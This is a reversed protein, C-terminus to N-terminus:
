VDHVRHAVHQVAFFRDVHAVHGSCCEFALAVAQGGRVGCEQFDGFAAGVPAAVADLHTYSVPGLTSSRHQPEPQMPRVSAASTGSARMAATSWIHILSLNEGLRMVAGKGYNKEILGLAQELAKKKDSVPAVLELHKKKDAM